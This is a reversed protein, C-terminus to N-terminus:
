AALSASTAEHVLRALTMLNVLTDVIFIFAKVRPLGFVHMRKLNWNQFASNRGEVANRARHYLQKWTPPGVLVDRALRHSGDKFAFAVDIIQGHPHDPKLFQCEAPPRPVDPLTFVPDHGNLCAHACMWKYRRRPSDFGNATFRYAFPCVPRGKDDYGRIPWLAKNQDSPDARLDIVRRAHLDYYVISLIPDRGFNADGAVADVTLSPYATHLYRLLAATPYLESANAPRVDDLLILSFRHLSDALQLPTSLYGQVGYGGKRQKAPDNPQNPSLRPQNSDAHWVYRAQPERAPAQCCVQACKPSDCKCGRRDKDRAPCPRPHDPSTPQYCTDTVSTCRLRSASYHLMGDPCILAHQWAPQSLLSAQHFLTVSQVILRNLAQVLVQEMGQDTEVAIPVGLLESNQGLTTLFYRLGGETPFIADRFGFCRAWRLNDPKQIQELVKTRTWSNVVQWCILLFLSV